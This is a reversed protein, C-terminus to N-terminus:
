SLIYDGSIVKRVTYGLEQLFVVADTEGLGFQPGKGPKQEVIVTPHCREITERAGRLVFLEFGECDIKMFDVVELALSDLTIMPIDGPGNVWTDGSSTPATHMAVHDTKAGLAVEHLTVNGAKSLNARFCERHAEVPEFAHVHGFRKALHMSWTGAHAGVDVAVRWQKVHELAATLKSYQYTPLGDIFVGVKDMWEILHREGDPLWLGRYNQM